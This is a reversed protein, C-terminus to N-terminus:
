ITSSKSEGSVTEHLMQCNKKTNGVFFSKRATGLLEAAECQTPSMCRGEPSLCASKASGVLARSSPEMGWNYSKNLETSWKMVVDPHYGKVNM